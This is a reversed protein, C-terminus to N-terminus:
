TVSVLGYALAAVLLIVVAVLAMTILRYRM